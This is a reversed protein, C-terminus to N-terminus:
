LVHVRFRRRCPLQILEMLRSVFVDLVRQLRVSKHNETEDKQGEEENEDEDNTPPVLGYSPIIAALPTTPIKSVDDDNDLYTQAILSIHHSINALVALSAEVMISQKSSLLSILIGANSMHQTTRLHFNMM